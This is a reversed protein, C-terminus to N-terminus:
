GSRRKYREFTSRVTDEIRQTLLTGGVNVTISDTVLVGETGRGAGGGRPAESQRAAQVASGQASMRAGTRAAAAAPFASVMRSEKTLQTVAIVNEKPITRMTAGLRAIALSFKDIKKEDLTNIARTLESVGATVQGFNLNPASVQSAAALARTLSVVKRDNISNLRNGLTSIHPAARRANEGLAGMGQAAIGALRWTAPSHEETMKSSLYMWAAGAAILLPAIGIMAIRLAGFSSAATGNAVALANAQIAASSLANGFSWVLKVAIIGFFGLDKMVGVVGRVFGILDKAYFGADQFVRKIQQFIDVVQGGMLILRRQSDAQQEQLRTLEEVKSMNGTFFAAAIGMDKFGASAAFAKKEWRGLSEWSRNTADLGARLLYLRQEESANLMQISNFYAGGLIANLKAVSSAADEFTDFRAAISTLTNIEIGTTKAISSLGQLV